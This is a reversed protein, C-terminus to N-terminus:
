QNQIERLLPLKGEDGGHEVFHQLLTSGMAAIEAAMLFTHGACLCFSAVALFLSSIGGGRGFLACSIGGGGEGAAMVSDFALAGQRKIIFLTSFMAFAM